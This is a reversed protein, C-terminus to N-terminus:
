DQPGGAPGLVSQAKAFGALSLCTKLLRSNVWDRLVDDFGTAAYTIRLFVSGAFSGIGSLLVLLISGFDNLRKKQYLILSSVILCYAIGTWFVFPKFVEDPAPYILLSPFYCNMTELRGKSVIYSILSVKVSCHGFMSESM